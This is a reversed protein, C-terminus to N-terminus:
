GRTKCVYHITTQGSRVRKVDIIKLSSDVVDNIEPPRELGKAKLIMKRDGTRISTEDVDEAKYDSFYAIGTWDPTGAPGTMTGTDYDYSASDSAAPRSLTVQVGHVRLLAGVSAQLATTISM